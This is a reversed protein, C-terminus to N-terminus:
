PEGFDLFANERNQGKEPFENYRPLAFASRWLIRCVCYFENPKCVVLKQKMGNMCKQMAGECVRAHKKGTCQKPGVTKLIAVAGLISVVM